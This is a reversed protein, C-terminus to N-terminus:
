SKVEPKPKKLEAIQDTLDKAELKLEAIEKKLKEERSKKKELESFDLAFYDGEFFPMLLKLEEKSLEFLFELYEPDDVRLKHGIEITVQNEMLERRVTEQRLDEAAILDAHLKDLEDKRSYYEDTKAPDISDPIPQGQENRKAYRDRYEYIKRLYKTTWETPATRKRNIANATTKIWGEACSLYFGPKRSFRELSGPIRQQQPFQQGALATQLDVVDMEYMKIEPKGMVKKDESM